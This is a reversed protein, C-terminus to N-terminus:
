RVLAKLIWSRPGYGWARHVVSRGNPAGGFCGKLVTRLLIWALTRHQTPLQPWGARTRCSPVLPGPACANSRRCFPAPREGHLAVPWLRAARPLSPILIAALCRRSGHLRRVRTQSVTSSRSPQLKGPLSTRAHSRAM